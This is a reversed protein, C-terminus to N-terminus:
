GKQSIGAQDLVHCSKLEIVLKNLAVNSVGIVVVNVQKACVEFWQGYRAPM